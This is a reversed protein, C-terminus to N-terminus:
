MPIPSRKLCLFFNLFTFIHFTHHSAVPLRCGAFFKLHIRLDNYNIFKQYKSQYKTIQTQVDKLLNM